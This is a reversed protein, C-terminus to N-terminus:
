RLWRAAEQQLPPSLAALAVDRRQLVRVYHLIAVRDDPTVFARCPPMLGYGADIVALIRGDSLQAAAADVLSPPRRLTMARAVQSDGDGAVGHCAACTKEFRDRGREVLARTLPPPAAPEDMPIAGAPPATPGGLDPRTQMRHLSTDCGALLTAIALIAIGVALAIGHAVAAPKM